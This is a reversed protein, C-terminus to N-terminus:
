NRYLKTAQYKAIKEWAPIFVPLIYFVPIITYLILPIVTNVFSFGIALFYGIPAFIFRNKAFRIIYAPLDNDILRFDRTAYSWQWYM